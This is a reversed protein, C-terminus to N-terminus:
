SQRSQRGDRKALGALYEMVDNYGRKNALSDFPGRHALILVAFPRLSSAVESPDILGRRSLRAIRDVYYLFWDFRDYVHESWKGGAGEKELANWARTESLEVCGVSPDKASYTRKAIFSEMMEVAESARTDNHIEVIADHADRVLQRRLERKRTEASTWAGIAAILVTGIGLLKVFADIRDKEYPDM